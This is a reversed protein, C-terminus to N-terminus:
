CTAISCWSTPLTARRLGVWGTRRFGAFAATRTYATLAAEVRTRQRRDRADHDADDRCGSRPDMAEHRRHGHDVGREGPADVYPPHFRATRAGPSGDSVCNLAGWRVWDDGRGETQVLAHMREWDALPVFSYFRLGTPGARRLRRAADQVSWDIETNHVQAVGKSLAYTIGRRM